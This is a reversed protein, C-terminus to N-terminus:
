IQVLNTINPHKQAPVRFVVKSHYKVDAGELKELCFSEDLIFIRLNPVLIGKIPYKPSSNRFVLTTNSILMRSNTLMCRKM